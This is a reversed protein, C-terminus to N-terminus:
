LLYIFLYIVTGQEASVPQYAAAELYEFCETASHFRIPSSAENSQNSAVTVASLGAM